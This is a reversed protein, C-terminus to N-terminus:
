LFHNRMVMRNNSRAEISPTCLMIAQEKLFKRGQDNARFRANHERNIVYCAWGTVDIVNYFFTLPWRLTRRKVTYEGLM